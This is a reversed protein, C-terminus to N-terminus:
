LLMKCGSLKKGALKKTILEMMKQFERRTQKYTMHTCGQLLKKMEKILMLKVILHIKM